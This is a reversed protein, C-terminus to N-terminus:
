VCGKSTCHLRNTSLTGSAKEIEKEIEPILEWQGGRCQKGGTREPQTYCTVKSDSLDYCYAKIEKNLCYHTPELDLPGYYNYSEIALIIIAVAVIGIGVQKETTMKDM